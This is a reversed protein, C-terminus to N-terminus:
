KPRPTQVPMPVAEGAAPQLPLAQRMREDVELVAQFAAPEVTIGGVLPNDLAVILLLNVLISASLLGTMTAQVWFRRIAFLYSFGITTGAGVLLAVWIMVPMGERATLLRDRRTDAMITLAGIAEQMVVQHGPTAPQYSTLIAWMRDMTRAGEALTQSNERGHDDVWEVGIVITAYTLALEQLQAGAPDGLAPALRYIRVLAEAEQNATQRVDNFEGWVLVVVFALLVGFTVGVVNMLAAAVDHSPRLGEPDTLRRVVVLGGLAVLIGGGLLIVAQVWLPLTVLTDM